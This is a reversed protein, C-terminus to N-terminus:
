EQRNADKLLVKYGAKVMVKVLKVKRSLLNKAASIGAATAQAKLSPDMTSLEMLQLSNDASQKAVDRTIAGPIYIGRLGDLDYVILSVPFLSQQFRVSQIEINLREGDLTAIGYVFNDKPICTGNIYIDDLLRLKVISGNVLSQSEHIVAEITNAENMEDNGTLSYFGASADKLKKYTTDPKGLFSVPVKNKFRSVAFVRQKNQLSKEKIRERVREPHQIDLIKELTNQLQSIEPDSEGGKNMTQMMDELRDIEGSLLEDRSSTYEPQDVKKDTTETNKLEKDLQALRQMIKQEPNDADTEYLSTNLRQGYKNATVSTINEIENESLADQDTKQYYPDNRMWEAMKLSDKRAQDYFSMKDTLNDKAVSATPLNLNLGKTNNTVTNTQKGTGGGMAWFAMTIFPTVLLPFVMLMKRKRLFAQSRAENKM